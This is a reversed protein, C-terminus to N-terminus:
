FDWIVVYLKYYLLVYVVNYLGLWKIKVDGIVVVNVYVWVIVVVLVVFWLLWGGFGVCVVGVVVLVSCVLM